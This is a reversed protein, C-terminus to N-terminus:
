AARSFESKGAYAVEMEVLYLGLSCILQLIRPNVVLEEESIQAHIRKLIAQLYRMRTAMLKECM